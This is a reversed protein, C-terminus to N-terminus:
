ETKDKPKEGRMMRFYNRLDLTLEKIQQAQSGNQQQLNDVRSREAAILGLFEARLKEFRGALVQEELDAIRRQDEIRKERQERTETPLEKRRVQRVTVVRTVLTALAAIASSWLGLEHPKMQLPDGM